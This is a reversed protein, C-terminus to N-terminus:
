VTTCLYPRIEEITALTTQTKRRPPPTRRKLEADGRLQVVKRSISKRLSQRDKRTFGLMPSADRTSDVDASLMPMDPSSDVPEEHPMVLFNHVLDRATCEIDGCRQASATAVNLFLALLVRREDLTKHSASGFPRRPPFHKTIYNDRVLKSCSSCLPMRRFADRLERFQSYRRCLIWAGRHDVIQVVYEAFGKAAPATVHSISTKLNM